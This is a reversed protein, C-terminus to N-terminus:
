GNSFVTRSLGTIIHGFTRQPVFATTVLFWLHHQQPIPHLHHMPGALKQHSRKWNVCSLQFLKSFFFTWFFITSSGKHYKNLFEEKRMQNTLLAYHMFTIPAKMIKFLHKGIQHCWQHAALGALYAEKSCVSYSDYVGLSPFSESCDVHGALVVLYLNWVRIWFQLFTYKIHVRSSIVEPLEKTCHHQQSWCKISCNRNLFAKGTNPPCPSLTIHLWQHWQMCSVLPVPLFLLRLSIYLAAVAM